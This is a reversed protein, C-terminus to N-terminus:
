VLLGKFGLSGGAEAEGLSLNCTHGRVSSIKVCNRSIWSPDGQKGSLCKVLQAM